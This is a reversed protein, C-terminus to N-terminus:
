HPNTHIIVDCLYDLEDLLKEKIKGAIKHSESLTLNGDMSLKLIVIYKEGTPKARVSDVHMIEDFSEAVKIISEKLQESLDTDMLIEYSSKALKIGVGAIWISILTGVIGDVFYYGKSSCYIGILTGITIAIDNRHDEMNAKILISKNKVYSNRAYIFLLLKVIITIFCVLILTYSFELKNQNIISVISNKIMILSVSIMTASIIFSFIYEAKGHGYPHNNDNPIASIKNGVYSMLSAFIDGASNIGDAIMAQSKSIIGIIIKIVLLFINFIIGATSVKRVSNSKENM